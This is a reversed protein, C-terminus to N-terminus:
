TRRRREWPWRGFRYYYRRNAQHRHWIASHENARQIALVHRL